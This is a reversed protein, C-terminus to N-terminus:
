LLVLFEEVMWPPGSDFSAELSEERVWCGGEEGMGPSSCPEVM